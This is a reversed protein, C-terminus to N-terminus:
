RDGGIPRAAAALSRVTPHNFVARPSIALGAARARRILSTALMSDGGLEFFSADLDVGGTGLVEAFIARLAEEVANGTREDGARGLSPPAPLAARDLKGNATLPLADLLVVVAPVM